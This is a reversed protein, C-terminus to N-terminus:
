EGAEGWRAWLADETEGRMAAQTRVLLRCQGAPAGQARLHAVLQAGSADDWMAKAAVRVAWDQRTKGLKKPSLASWDPLGEDFAVPVTSATDAAPGTDLHAQIRERMAEDLKNIRSLGGPVNRLYTVVGALLTGADTSSVANIALDPKLDDYNGPFGLWRRLQRMAIDPSMATAWAEVRSLPPVAPDVLASARAEAQAQAQAAEHQGLKAERDALKSFWVDRAGLPQLTLARKKASIFENGYQPHDIQLHRDGEAQIQANALLEHITRSAEWGGVEDPLADEMFATFARRAEDCVAALADGEYPQDWRDSARVKGGEVKLAVCGYGFSKALGLTHAANDAGGFDLAWLLAGLEVPLLNHVRLKFVCGKTAHWPRFTTSIKNLDKVKLPMPPNAVPTTRPPYRKWGRPRVSDDEWTQYAHQDKPRDAPDSGQQVYNPHYSAKPASLVATVRNVAGATDVPVADSFWVRGKRAEAVAAADETDEGAKKLPVLGFLRDAFDEQPAKLPAQHKLFAEAVSHKYPLRFMMALGISEVREGKHCPLFFVPLKRETDGSHLWDDFDHSQKGFHELLAALEDNSTDKLRNQQGRDSHIFRFAELVKRTVPRTGHDGYFVFDHQKPNGKKPPQSAASDKWVNPQGTFVLRGTTTPRDLSALGYAGCRVRGSISGEHRVKERVAVDVSMADAADTDRRAIAGLWQKYKLAASKREGPAFNRVGKKDALAVLDRYHLKAFSRVELMAVVEESQQKGERKSQAAREEHSLPRLLGGCSFPYPESKGDKGINALTAMKSLYLPRNHLDRVGYRHDNVRSALAGFTAIEVVGRVMGRLTSGPIALRGDPLTYAELPGSEPRKAGVFVPTKTEVYVNLVGSFVREGNPVDQAGAAAGGPAVVVTNSFPVFNYPAQIRPIDPPGSRNSQGSRPDNPAGGQRSNHSM